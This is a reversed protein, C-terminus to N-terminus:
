IKPVFVGSLHSKQCIRWVFLARFPSFLDREHIKVILFRFFREKEKSSRSARSLQKLELSCRLGVGLKRLDNGLTGPPSKSGLLCLRSRFPSPKPLSTPADAAKDALLFPDYYKTPSRDWITRISSAHRTPRSIRD